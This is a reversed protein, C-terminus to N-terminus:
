KALSKEAIEAVDPSLKPLKAIAQLEARMQKKLAPAYKKWATFSSALRAAVQPNTADLKAVWKGVLKYGAGDAAHFGLPNAHSFALLLSYIKNPNSADFAPHRTLKQVRAAAGPQPACAQIRLWKNVSLKEDRHRAYFTELFEARRPSKSHALASLAAISETM